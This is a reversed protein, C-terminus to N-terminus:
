ILKQLYELIKEKEKNIENKLYGDDNDLEIKIYAYLKKIKNIDFLITYKEWLKTFLDFTIDGHYILAIILIYTFHNNNGVEITSVVHDVLCTKFKLNTEYFLNMYNHLQYIYIHQLILKITKDDDIDANTILKLIQNTDLLHHGMIYEIMKYAKNEFYFFIMHSRLDEPMKEFIKPSDYKSLQSLSIVKHDILDNLIL